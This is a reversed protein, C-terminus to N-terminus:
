PFSFLESILQRGNHTLLSMKGRADYNCCLFGRECWAQDVEAVDCNDM